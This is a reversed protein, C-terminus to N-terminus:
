ANLPAPLQQSESQPCLHSLYWKQMRGEVKSLTPVSPHWKQRERWDALAPPCACGQVAEKTAAFGCPSRRGWGWGHCEQLETRAALCADQRQMVRVAWVPYVRQTGPWPPWPSQTEPGRPESIILSVIRPLSGYRSCWM